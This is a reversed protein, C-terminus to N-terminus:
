NLTTNMTIQFIGAYILSSVPFSLLIILISIFAMFFSELHFIMYILVFIVSFVAYAIDDM